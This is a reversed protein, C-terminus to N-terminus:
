VPQAHNFVLEKGQLTQANKKHKKDYRDKYRDKVGANNLMGPGGITFSLDDIGQMEDIIQNPNVVNPTQQPMQSSRHTKSDLKYVQNDDRWTIKEKSTEINHDIHSNTLTLDRVIESSKNVSM